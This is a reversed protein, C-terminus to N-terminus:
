MGTLQKYKPHLNSLRKMGKWVTTNHLTRLIQACVSSTHTNQPSPRTNHQVSCLIDACVSSTQRNRSLAKHFHTHKQLSGQPLTHTEPSPRTSTHTNRSLAKHQASKCELVVGGQLRSSDNHKAADGLRDSVRLDLLQQLDHHFDTNHRDTGAKSKLDDMGTCTLRVIISNVLISLPGYM